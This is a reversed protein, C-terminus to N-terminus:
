VGLLEPSFYVLNPSIGLGVKQIVGSSPATTGMLGATESLYYLTGTTAGTVRLLGSFLVCEVDEGALAGATRIYGHCPFGSDGGLAKKVKVVGSDEFLHILHGYSLDEHAKVVIARGREPFFTYEPKGTYAFYKQPQIPVTGLDYKIHDVISNIARFVPTLIEDVTPEGTDAVRPFNPLAM